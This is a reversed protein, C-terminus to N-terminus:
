QIVAKVNLIKNKLDRCNFVSMSPSDLRPFKPQLLSSVILAKKLTIIIIKIKNIKKTSINSTAEYIM